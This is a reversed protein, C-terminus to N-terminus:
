SHASGSTNVDSLRPADSAAGRDGRVAYRLEVMGTAYPTVSMLHLAIDRDLRSFFPIGAGIAVPAITYRIEDVLGRRLFEGAVASGGAVWINRFRPRLEDRVLSVLDGRRFEVTARTRPLDRSSLVVTPTEGYAWGFGQAEFGLATEYTRAGMVYCDITKLFAAVEDPKLTAGGAFEDPTDLWDVRGDPRAVFGDLSSAM